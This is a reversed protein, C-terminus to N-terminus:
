GKKQDGLEILYSFLRIYCLISIGFGLYIGFKLELYGFRGEGKGEGGLPSPLTLPFEPSL